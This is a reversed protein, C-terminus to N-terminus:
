RSIRRECFDRWHLVCASPPAGINAALAVRASM